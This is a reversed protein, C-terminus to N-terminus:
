QNGDTSQLVRERLAFTKYLVDLNTEYGKLDQDQLDKDNFKIQLENVQDSLLGAMVLLMEENEMHINWNQKSLKIDERLYPPAGFGNEKIRGIFDELKSELRKIELAMDMNQSQYVRSRLENLINKQLGLEMLCQDKVLQNIMQRDKIRLHALGIYNVSPHELEFLKEWGKFLAAASEIMVGLVFVWIAIYFESNGLWARTESAKNLFVTLGVAVLFVSVMWVVRPLWWRAKYHTEDEHIPSDAIKEAMLAKVRFNAGPQDASRLDALWATVKERLSQSKKEGNSEDFDTRVKVGPGTESKLSSLEKQFEAQSLKKEFELDALKEELALLQQEVVLRDDKRWCTVLEIGELALGSNALVVNLAKTVRGILEADLSGDVLDQASYNMVFNSIIKFLEPKDFVFVGSTVERRPIVEEVFFRKADFVKLACLMSLDVLVKDASILNEVMLTASFPQGPLYGAWFGGGDGKFRDLDTIVRNDGAPYHVVRGDRFLAIGVRGPPVQIHKSLWGKLEQIPYAVALMSGQNVMEENKKQM